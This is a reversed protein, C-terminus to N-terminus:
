NVTTLQKSQEYYTFGKAPIFDQPRTHRSHNNLECTKNGHRGGSNCSYSLCKRNRRCRLGGNIDDTIPTEIVHGVLGFDSSLINIM